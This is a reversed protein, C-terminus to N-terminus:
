ADIVESYEPITSRDALDGGTLIAEYARQVLEVRELASETESRVAYLLRLDEEIFRRESKKEGVILAGVTRGDASFPLALKYGEGALLAPFSPSELDPRTTSHPAALLRGATGTTKAAELMAETDQPLEGTAATLVVPGRRALVALSALHLEMDVFLRAQEVIEEQSSAGRIQEQFAVLAKAYDYQITFFTRDVWTGIWRRLPPYLIVPLAVALLRIWGLFQPLRPAVREAVVVGVLFYVSALAGALVGYILSRRIIIDIDLLRTRVIAFTCAVPIAMEFVRDVEPPIPSAVGALQLLTRFVYPAAGLTIGWLLWRTQERERALDLKRGSRYLTVCGLGVALALSIEAIARPLDLWAWAGPTPSRLDHYAAVLQWAILAASGIWLGRMLQPRRTLLPRARPFTQTMRFFFVPLTTLCAIGIATLLGDGWSHSRPVHIGHIITAVGYLLTCWFLDRVPGRAARPALVALSVALFLLGELLLIAFHFRSISEGM